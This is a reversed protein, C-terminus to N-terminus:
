IKDEEFDAIDRGEANKLGFAMVLIYQVSNGHQKYLRECDGSGIGDGAELTGMAAEEHLSSHSSSTGSEGDCGSCDCDFNCNVFFNHTTILQYPEGDNPYVNYVKGEYSKPPPSDGNDGDHNSKKEEEERHYLTEGGDDYTLGYGGYNGLHGFARRPNVPSEEEESSDEQKNGAAQRQLAHEKLRKQLDERLKKGINEATIADQLRPMELLQSHLVLRLDPIVM